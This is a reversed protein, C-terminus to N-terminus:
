DPCADGFLSNFLLFDEVNVMGDKNLDAACCDCSTGFASNFDIFDFTSVQGDGNIDGLCRSCENWSVPGYNMNGTVDLTRNTFGDTTSTCEIGEDLTEENTWNDVSFKFETMGLSLDITTTWICNGDDDNMPNCEGCWSNFLGNVEPTTYSFDVNGMDLEFTVSYLCSGNDVEANVNFNVAGPDTCGGIQNNSCDSCTDYTDNLEVGPGVVVLRNAYEVGDTIPACTGNGDLVDDVLNEQSSFDDVTYKYELDGAPQSLTISYIGDADPDDLVICGSCWSTFPGTLEVQGFSETYCNMNVNFVVDYSCSGDDITASLNYNNADPDMCGAINEPDCATCSGYTDNFVTGETITVLRNAYANFDTIPACDAGGLMDDVLDEQSAWNDVNYKYELDGPPLEFTTTWIGDLDLDTLPNCDGCWGGLADSPGVINVSTFGSECRMDVNFTASVVSSNLEYVRIYDVDMQVPFQTSGDPSGPWNGGVAVNLLVHYEQGFLWYHPSVDNVHLSHYQVGDLKWVILNEYWEIAYIHYDSSVTGNTLTQTSGNSIVAEPTGYHATGYVTTPQHGITEVIDIEGPWFFPALPDSLPDDRLMWFAPWIGQGTPLKIRAEIKGQEWSQLGATKIRASTYNQGGFSEDKAIISLVGDQVVINNDGERYYQLENNGWGNLGQDSGTGVDYSWNSSNLSNGEFEDSWILDWDQAILSTVSLTFAFLTSFFTKMM